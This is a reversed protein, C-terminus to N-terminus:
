AEFQKTEDKLKKVKGKTKGFIKYSKLKKEKILKKFTKIFRPVDEYQSIPIHELMLTVDGKKL